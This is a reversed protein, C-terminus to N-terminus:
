EARGPASLTGAAANALRARRTARAKALATADLRVVPYEGIPQGTYWPSREYFFALRAAPSAAFAADAALRADFAKRLPTRPWCTARWSSPSAPM